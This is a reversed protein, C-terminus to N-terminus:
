KKLRRYLDRFTKMGRHDPNKRYGPLYTPLYSKYEAVAGEWTAQRGLKVSALRRKHFLWRIGAAINLNPDFIEDQDINILHDKLEGEEDELFGLTENTM